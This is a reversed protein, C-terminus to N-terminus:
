PHNYDSPPPDPAKRNSASIIGIGILVVVGVAIWLIPVHLLYAGIALGLILVIGAVGAAILRAIGKSNDIGSTFRALM